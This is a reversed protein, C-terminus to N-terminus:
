GSIYETFGNFLPKNKNTVPTGHINLDNTFTGLRANADGLFYIDGKKAFKKYSESLIKYFRIRVDEPFHAGPAYFFCFYLQKNKTALKIWVIDFNKSSYAKSILNHYKERYFIVLGRRSKQKDKIYSRHFLFRYGSLFLGRAHSCASEGYVFIDPNTKLLSVLGPNVSLRNRIAGGGNWWCMRFSEESELTSSLDDAISLKSDLDRSLDPGKM